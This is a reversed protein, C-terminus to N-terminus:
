QMAREMCRKVSAVWTGSTLSDTGKAVASTSSAETSRTFAAAMLKLNNRRERLLHHHAFGVNDDLVEGPRRALPPSEHCRTGLGFCSIKPTMPGAWDPLVESRRQRLRVMSKQASARDGAGDGDVALIHAAHLIDIAQAAADAHDGGQRDAQRQANIIVDGKGRAAGAERFRALEVTQDLVTQALGGEPFFDLIAKMAEAGFQGAALLLSQGDGAGKRM